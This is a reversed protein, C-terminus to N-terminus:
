YKTSIKYFYFSPPGDVGAEAMKDKLDKSGMFAKAKAMDTVAFVITVNHTDGITHGLVRDILGADVRAQKHTDFSKKWADWDKVKHNVMLRVTESIASTDYMVTELYDIMPSGTVGGKKMREKLGPMAAFQKAKNVDDMRLVVMIKNSDETGRALLYNHLGSALRVSDHSEYVPKWKAYNAVKHKIIMLSSPGPANVPPPPPTEAVVKVTDAPTEGAKKEDASNCSSFFLMSAAVSITAFFKFKKM